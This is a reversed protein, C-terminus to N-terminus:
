NARYKKQRSELLTKAADRMVAFHDLLQRFHEVKFKLLRSHSAAVYNAPAPLGFGASEGITDGGNHLRELRREAAIADIAGNVLIYVAEPTAGQAVLLTGSPASGAEVHEAVKVRTEEPLVRFIPSIAISASILRKLYINELTQRLRPNKVILREIGAKSIEIVRCEDFATATIDRQTAGLVGAEGFFNGEHLIAVGVPASSSDHKSLGASGSVLVFLSDGATGEAIITEGPDITRLRLQEIIEELDAVGLGTFVAFETLRVLGKRLREQPSITDLQREMITSHIAGTLQSVDHDPPATRVREAFEFLNEKSVQNPSHEVEFEIASRDNVLMETHGLRQGLQQEREREHYFQAITDGGREAAREVALRSQLIRLQKLAKENKPQLNLIAQTVSFAQKIDGQAAYQSAAKEYIQLAEKQQGLKHCIDGVNVWIRPNNPEIKLLKQYATLAGGLDGKAAKTQAEKRLRHIEESNM